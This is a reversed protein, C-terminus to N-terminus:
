STARDGRPWLRVAVLAAEAVVPTLTWACAHDHWWLGSNPQLRERGGDPAPMDAYSVEWAGHAAFLVGSPSTALAEARRVIHADIRWADRRAMLNFDSSSGPGAMCVLPTAGDFAFPVLTELCHDIGGDDSRLRVPAGDLLVIIRTTQAFPSFPGSATITAISARWDFDDLGSMAPQRVIEHTLGGGNKWPTAKLRARDFRHVMM